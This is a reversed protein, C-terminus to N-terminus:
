RLTSMRGTSNIFGWRAGDRVRALGECFDGAGEFRAEIAAKGTSDIYGWKSDKQVAAVGESFLRAADFAPKIVVQGNPDAYGFKGQLRVPFLKAAERQHIPANRECGAILFLPLLLALWRRHEALARVPFRPVAAFSHM